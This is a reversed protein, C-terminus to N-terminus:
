VVENKSRQGDSMRRFLSGDKYKEFFERLDCSLRYKAAHPSPKEILGKELLDKATREIHRETVYFEYALDKKTVYEPSKGIGNLLKLYSSKVIIPSDLDEASQLISFTKLYPHFLCNFLEVHWHEVHDAGLFEALARVYDLSFIEARGRSVHGRFLEILNSLDLNHNDELKIHSMKEPLTPNCPQRSTGTRLPNILVFKTFRDYSLSDWETYKSCLESYKQPQIAILMTLYCEELDIHLSKTVHRFNGDSVIKSATTLFQERHYHSFSSFEEIKFVFNKDRVIGKSDSNRKCFASLESYTFTDWKSVNTEPIQPILNILRTKGTGRIGIFMVSKNAMISLVGYLTPIGLGRYVSDVKSVFDNIPKISNEEEGTEFFPPPLDKAPIVGNKISM